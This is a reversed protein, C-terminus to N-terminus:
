ALGRLNRDGETDERRRIPVRFNLFRGADPYFAFCLERLLSWVSPFTVFFGVFGEGCGDVLGTVAVGVDLLLNVDGLLLVEM